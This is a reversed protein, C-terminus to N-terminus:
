KLWSYTSYFTSATIVVLIIIVYLPITNIETRTPEDIRIDTKHEIKNGSGDTLTLVAEYTGKKEYAHTTKINFSTTEDGLDWIYSSITGGEPDSSGTADFEIQDGVEARSNEDLGTIKVSPVPPTVDRVTVEVADTSTRQGDSVELTVMYEGPRTFIYTPKVGTLTKEGGDNFSWKYTLGTGQSLGGDFSVSVGEDVAV